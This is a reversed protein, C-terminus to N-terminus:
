EAVRYQQQLAAAIQDVLALTAKEDNRTISRVSWTGDPKAEIDIGLVAQAQANAHVLKLLISELEAKTTTIM